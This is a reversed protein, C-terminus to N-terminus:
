EVNSFDAEQVNPMRGKFLQKGNLSIEFLAQGPLLQLEFMKGYGILVAARESIEEKFDFSYEYRLHNLNVKLSITNM